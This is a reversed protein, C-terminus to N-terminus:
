GIRGSGMYIPCCQCKCNARRFITGRLAPKWHVAKQALLRRDEPYYCSLSGSGDPRKLLIQPYVNKTKQPMHLFLDIGYTRPTRRAKGPLYWWKSAGNHKKLHTHWVYASLKRAYVGTSSKRFQPLVRYKRYFYKYLRQWLM